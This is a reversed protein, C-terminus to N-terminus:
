GWHRKGMRTLMEDELKSIEKKKPIGEYFIYKEKDEKIQPTKISILPFYLPSKPAEPCINLLILAREGISGIYVGEMLFEKYHIKYIIEERIKGM